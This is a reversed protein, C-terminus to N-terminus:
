SIGIIILDYTVGTGAGSNEIRLLDATSATVGYGGATPDILVFLGDPKIVIEDTADSVWNVFANVAAGGLLVNNTNGAAAKLIMGKIASFTLTNGFADTLGGALDLEENGSAALTRQDHFIQDAQNLGVGNSFELTKVYNLKDTPTGLDLASTLIAELMLQVKTSLAM